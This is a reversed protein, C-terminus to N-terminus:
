KRRWFLNPFKLPWLNRTKSEVAELRQTLTNSKLYLFRDQHLLAFLCPNKQGNEKDIESIISDKKSEYDFPTVLGAFCVLLLVEQGIFKKYEILAKEKSSKILAALEPPPFQRKERHFHRAVIYQLQYELQHLKYSLKPQTTIEFISYYNFELPLEATTPSNLTLENRKQSQLSQCSQQFTGNVVHFVSSIEPPVNSVVWKAPSNVGLYVDIEGDQRQYKAVCWQGILAFVDKDSLEKHGQIQYNMVSYVNQLYKQVTIRGHKEYSEEIDQVSSSSESRFNKREAKLLKAFEELALSNQQLSIREKEKM